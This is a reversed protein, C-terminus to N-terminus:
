KASSSNTGHLKKETNPQLRQKTWVKRRHAGVEKGGKSQGKRDDKNNNKEGRRNGKGGYHKEKEKKELLQGFVHATIPAGCTVFEDEKAV